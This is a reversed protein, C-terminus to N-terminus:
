SKPRTALGMGVHGIVGLLVIDVLQVFHFGLGTATALKADIGVLGFGIVWGTELTGFSAFASLPVLSMLIAFASALTAQALTTESPLGLGRALVACFLFVLLWTPLSVLAARVLPGRGGARRLAESTKETMALLKRGREFRDLELARAIADSLALLLDGRASLLFLVIAVAGSAAGVWGLWPLNSYGGSAALALCAISLGLALTALDLVRAVVLAALGESAPVDSVRNSYVVFTAEGIRAPLTLAAMQYAANISFTAGFSPRHEPPLLIRFRVTRLLYICVYIALSELYVELSLSACTRRVDALDVHGLVMLLVLLAAAVCLSVLVRVAIKLADSSSRRRADIL